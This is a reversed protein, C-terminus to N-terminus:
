AHATGFINTIILRKDDLGHFAQTSEILARVGLRAYEVLKAPIDSYAKTNPHIYPAEVGHRFESHLPAAAEHKQNYSFGLIQKIFPRYTIAQAGWYKARLRASLIDEAPPDDEDFAFNRSVWKMSGVREQVLGVDMFEESITLGETTDPHYFMKHIHNLHKRLYLQAIYSEFIKGWEETQETHMANPYPMEDEYALLGSQPLPLEAIIDSTDFTLQVSRFLHLADPAM